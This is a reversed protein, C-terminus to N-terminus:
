LLHRPYSRHWQRRFREVAGVTVLLDFAIHFASATSELQAHVRATAPTGHRTVTMVHEDTMRAHAPDRDSVEFTGTADVAVEVGEDPLRGRQVTTMEFISRDRDPDRTYRLEHPPSHAVYLDLPMAPEGFVPADEPKGLPVAPLLLRSGAEGGLGITNVAPFPSPWINPWDSGSVDLRIRHGPEFTWAAADLTVEIDYRRGPVLPEPETHRDRHTANLVGWTVLASGGDPAVDCLKCVINVVPATSAFALRARPWGLIELPQDLPESTYVLAYVEDPRQDEPCGIWPDGSWSRNTAGLSAKYEFSDGGEAAPEARLAGGQGLYLRHEGAGPAPFSPEARWYGSTLTRARHPPDYKQMYVTLPPEETIGTDLGKLWHDYWRVIQSMSDIRPGPTGWEPFIHGWPGILAKKPATLHQMVRVASNKYGDMWGGIM